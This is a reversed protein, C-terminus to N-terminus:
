ETWTFKFTASITARLKNDDTRLKINTFKGTATKTAMDKSELIILEETDDDCRSHLWVDYKNAVADPDDLKPTRLKLLVSGSGYTSDVIPPCIRFTSKEQFGNSFSFVLNVIDNYAVLDGIDHFVVGVDSSIAGNEDTSADGDILTPTTYCHYTLQGRFDGELTFTIYGNNSYGGTTDCNGSEEPLLQGTQETAEEEEQKLKDLSECGPLIITTALLLQPIIKM